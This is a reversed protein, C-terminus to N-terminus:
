LSHTGALTQAIKEATEKANRICDNMSVGNLYNGTFFLGPLASQEQRIREMAEVHGIPYQPIAREWRAIEQHVAEGDAGLSIKMDERVQRMIEEDSLDFAQPDLGGGIFVSFCREGAPARRAFLSSNWISGLIRIGQGRPALFGFGQCGHRIDQKRCGLCAICLRNYPISSWYATSQPLLSKLMDPLAYAPAAFLIIDATLAEGGETQVIYGGDPNRGVERVGTNLRLDNGLERALADTLTQLGDVFSCLNKAHPKKKADTPKKRRFMRAIGGRMLGGHQRELDYLMPFTGRLSLKDPDGAYVGSVFPTVINQLIEDGFRRRIFQALSEDEPSRNGSRFIEKLLGRKAKGSLLETKWLAGLGSPVEHLKGNLYIYRANGRMSQKLLENELNLLSCLELTEPANDLFSNPGREFLYGGGRSTEISGGPRNNKELVTACFGKRKLWYAATLGSIGAGIIIIKTM